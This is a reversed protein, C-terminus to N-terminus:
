RVGNNFGKKKWCLFCHEQTVPEKLDKCNVLPRMLVPLDKPRATKYSRDLLGYNSCCRPLQYQRRKASRQMKTLINNNNIKLSRYLSASIMAVTGFESDDFWKKNELRKENRFKFLSNLLKSSVGDIFANYIGRCLSAEETAPSAGKISRYLKNDICSKAEDLQAQWPEIGIFEYIDEIIGQPDTYYRSTDICLAPVEKNEWCWILLAGMRDIYLEYGLPVVKPTQEWKDESFAEVNSFLNTQSTLIERPDRLCIIVKELHKSNTQVFGSSIIKVTKNYYKEASEDKKLGQVSVEPIEYFGKPNLEKAKAARGEDKIQVKFKDGAIEVGLAEVIQMTLSTRSRPEGTVVTIKKM